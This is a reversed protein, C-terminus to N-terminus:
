PSAPTIKELHLRMFPWSGAQGLIAKQCACVLETGDVDQSRVTLEVDAGASQWTRLDQSVKVIAQADTTGIARRFLIVLHPQGNADREVTPRFEPADGHMPDTGLCYETINPNGDGDPDALDAIIEPRSWDGNAFTIQQWTAIPSPPQEGAVVFATAGCHGVNSKFVARYNGPPLTGLNYTLVLQAPDTGAVGPELEAACNLVSGVSLVPRTSKVKWPRVSTASTITVSAQWAGEAQAVNITVPMPTPPLTPWIRVSFEGLRNSVLFNGAKDSVSNPAVTVRYGGSDAADWSGDATSVEFDAQLIMGLPDMSVVAESKFTATATFANPGTVTVNAGAATAMGSSSRFQLHLVHAGAKVAEINSPLLSGYVGVATNEVVLTRTVMNRDGICVTFTYTGPTLAGLQYVHTALRVPSAGAATNSAVDALALLGPDTPDVTAPEPPDTPPIPTSTGVTVCVKLAKSNTEVPSVTGWDTVELNPTPLLIGVEATRGATTNGFRVYAVNPVPPPPPPPPPVTGVTVARRGIETANASVIFTYNGATLAGLNYTHMELHPGIIIPAVATGSANTAPTPRPGVIIPFSVTNGSVVPTGWDLVTSNPNTINVSLQSRVTGGDIFANISALFIGDPPPPPPVTGAVAFSTSGLLSLDAKQLVVQYVGRELNGLQYIHTVTSGATTGNPPTVTTTGFTLAATFRNELRSMSGWDSVTMGSPLFIAAEVQYGTPTSLPKLYIFRPQPAGAIAFSRRGIERGDVQQIFTYSGAALTGLPYAHSESRVVQIVPDTSTTSTANARFVAGDRLASGWDTIQTAPSGITLTVNAVHNTGDPQVAVSQLAIAAPPPTVEVTFDYEGKKLGNIFYNLHYSGSPLLGLNYIPEFVPPSTPVVLTVVRSATAQVEFTNNGTRIATGQNTLVHYLDTFELRAKVAIGANTVTKSFTVGVQMEPETPPVVFTREALTVGNLKFVAVKTGAPVAGLLYNLNFPPPIVAIIGGGPVRDAVARLVYRGASDISVAPQARMSVVQSFQLSVSASVTAANSSNVTVAATAPISPPNEASTFPLSRVLATGSFIRLNYAGLPLSGLDYLHSVVTTTGIVGASPPSSQQAAITVNVNAGDRVPSGWSLVAVNPVSFTLTVQAQYANPSVSGSPAPTTFWEATVNSPAVLTGTNTQAAATFLSLTFFILFLTLSKM